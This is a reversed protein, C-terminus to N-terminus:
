LIYNAVKVNEMEQRRTVETVGVLTHDKLTPAINIKVVFTQQPASMLMQLSNSLCLQSIQQIKTNQCIAVKVIEM